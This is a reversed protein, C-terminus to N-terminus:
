KVVFFKGIAELKENMELKWYYLGSSLKQDITIEKGGIEAQYLPNNQNDVIILKNSGSFSKQSWKFTFPFVITDGQGPQLLEIISESRVNRFIFNELTENTAFSKLQTDQDNTEEKKRGAEQVVEISDSANKPIQKITDMKPEPKKRETLANKEEQFFSFYTVLLFGIVIVAAASYKVAKQLNFIKVPKEPLLEPIEEETVAVDMERDEIVLTNYREECEPCKKLHSIVFRKEKESLLESLNAYTALAQNSLHKKSDDLWKSYEEIFNEM